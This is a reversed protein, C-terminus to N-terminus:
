TNEKEEKSTENGYVHVDKEQLSETNERERSTESGHRTYMNNSSMPWM